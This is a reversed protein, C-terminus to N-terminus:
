GEALWGAAELAHYTILIDAGARRISGLIELTLRRGDTWGRESAAKVMSYEASVNYAALPQDFRQRAEAVVDLYALAPKVMLIDAGEVLDQELEAIAERRNAPDMQYGRRDGFQPASGAAERFPGYFGSAYKAAYAIIGVSQHGSEDLAARIAGVQGDMMGSPAIFDAGADAQSVAVRQYTELTRDNDVQEGALVGCHGHDTYECLCLDAVVALRDGHVEKVAGIAQQAIGDPRWAESGASDKRAPIGFLLVAPIGLEVARAARAVLSPTTLQYQGPMSSIERDDSVGEAVFMPYVFHSADLSTERVLGRVASTQRLRRARRSPLPPNLRTTIM